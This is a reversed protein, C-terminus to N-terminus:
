ADDRKEGDGRELIRSELIERMKYLTELINEPIRLDDAHNILYFTGEDMMTLYAQLKRMGDETLVERPDLM